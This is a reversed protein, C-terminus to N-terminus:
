EAPNTVTVGMTGGTNQSTVTVSVGHGAVYVGGLPNSADFYADTKADTFTAQQKEATTSGVAAVSQVTQSKGKGVLVEKHLSVADFNQLGFTADFPQRRNSPRSGDSYSFPAPRADV